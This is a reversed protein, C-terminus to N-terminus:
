WEETKASPELVLQWVHGEELHRMPHGHPVHDNMICGEAREEVRSHECVAAEEHINGDFLTAVDELPYAGQDINGSPMTCRGQGDFLRERVNIAAHQIQLVDYSTSWSIGTQLVNGAIHKLANWWCFGDEKLYLMHSMCFNPLQHVLKKM